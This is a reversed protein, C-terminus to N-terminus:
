GKSHFGCSLVAYVPPLLSARQDDAGPRHEHWEGRDPRYAMRVVNSRHPQQSIRAHLLANTPWCFVMQTGSRQCALPTNCYLLPIIQKGVHQASQRGVYEKRIFNQRDIIFTTPVGGIGGFAAENASTSM